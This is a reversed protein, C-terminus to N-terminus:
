EERKQYIREKPYLTSFLKNGITGFMSENQGLILIGNETLSDAFKKFIEMYRQKDYYILVNRCFIMHFKKEAIRMMDINEYKIQNSINSKIQYQDYELKQFYKVRRETNINALNADRYIGKKARSIADLNIDNAFIEYKVDRSKLAENLTISVSYPEEGTACGCSWVYVTHVKSKNILNPIIEKELKEWVHPDRFFQTVNISFALYLNNAEELNTSLLKLYEDFNVIGNIEMRYRIRRELFAAKFDDINKGTKTRVEMRIKDLITNIESETM